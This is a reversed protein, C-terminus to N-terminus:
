WERQFADSLYTLRLIGQEDSELLAVDFRCEVDELRHVILFQEAAQLIKRQKAHTIVTSLDFLSKVRTKVEVFVVLDQKRAIVDLEGGRTLYNRALIIFGQDQLIKCVRTEGDHGYQKTYSSM